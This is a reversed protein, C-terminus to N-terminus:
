YTGGCGFPKWEWFRYNPVRFQKGEIADWRKQGHEIALQIWTIKCLVDGAAALCYMMKYDALM